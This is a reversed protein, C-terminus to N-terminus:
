CICMGEIYNFIFAGIISYLLVVTILFIHTFWKRSWTGFKEYIYFASKEGKNLGSITWDKLGEFQKFMSSIEGANPTYPTPTFPNMYPTSPPWQPPGGGFQSPNTHSTSLYPSIAPNNYFNHFNTQGPPPIQITIRPRGGIQVRRPPPPTQSATSSM